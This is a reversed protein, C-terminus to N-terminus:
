EEEENGSADAGADDDQSDPSPDVAERLMGVTLPRAERVDKPVPAGYHEAIMGAIQEIDDADAGIFDDTLELDNDFIEADAELCEALIQRIPDADPGSAELDLDPQDPEPVASNKEGMYVQADANVILVHKQKWNHLKSVDDGTPAGIELSVSAKEAKDAYSILKATVSDFEREALKRVVGNVVKRSAQRLAEILDSHEGESMQSWPRPRHKFIELLMSLVDGAINEFDAPNFNDAIQEIAETAASSEAEYDPREGEDTSESEAEDDPKGEHEAQMKERLQILRAALWDKDANARIPEPKEGRGEYHDNILGILEERTHAKKLSAIAKAREQQDM